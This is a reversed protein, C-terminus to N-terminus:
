LLPNGATQNQAGPRSGHIVGRGRNGSFIPPQMLSRLLHQYRIGITKWDYSSEVFLRASKGIRRREAGDTLLKVVSDAFLTPDDAIRINEGDTADIGECGMSTSVIAKAMAMAELIKLRTGGGVLLPAIVVTASALYQRVDLVAGTIVVNEGKLKQVERDPNKGIIYLITKPKHKLIHPFVNRVFHVIGSINAHYDMSGVFAIIGDMECGDRRFYDCDVGNPVVSVPVGTGREMLLIRDKESCVTVADFQSSWLVEFKALKGATLMAYWRRFTNKEHDAYRALLNSEINHMDLVACQGQKRRLYHAMVLDEVQILDYTRSACLAAMKQAFLPSRYNLVSFPKDGWLGALLNRVGYGKKRPVLHIGGCVGGLQESAQREAEQSYFSLLDVAYGSAQLAKLVHFSRIKWGDDLPYPLRCTLMLARNM